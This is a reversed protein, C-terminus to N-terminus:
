KINDLDVGYQSKLRVKTTLLSRDKNPTSAILLPTSKGDAPICWYHNKKTYRIEWGISQLKRVIEQIEKRNKAM